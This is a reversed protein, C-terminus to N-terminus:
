CISDTTITIAGTSVCVSGDPSQCGGDIEYYDGLGNTLNNIEVCSLLIQIGSKTFPTSQVLIDGNQNKYFIDIQPTSGPVIIRYTAYAPECAEPATFLAPFEETLDSDTFSISVNVPAGNALLELTVVQPTGTVDFSQGNVILQGTTIDEPYTVTLDITYFGNPLCQPEGM